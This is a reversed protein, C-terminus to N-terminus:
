WLSPVVIDRPVDSFMGALHKYCSLFQEARQLLRVNEWLQEATDVGFVVGDIHPHLLVYLMAAEISTYGERQVAEQFRSVYVSSGSVRKEAASPDMLLLGQLFASRAYIMKGNKKAQEFFGCVDLRHDLINYPVQILDILPHMVAEMAESPEYVSVGIKDALGMEKAKIMGTMIGGRKLDDARHLMYCFIKDTNLCNLSKHLEALVTEESEAIDPHLKSVIRVQRAALGFRGLLEEATGYARATDFTTVGASLAAELVDFVEEDTPQRGLVNNVGYRMGFQVTGLCLKATLDRVFLGKKGM